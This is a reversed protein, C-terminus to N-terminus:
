SESEERDMRMTSLGFDIDERTSVKSLQKVDYVQDKKHINQLTSLNLPPKSREKSTYKELLSKERIQSIETKIKEIDRM